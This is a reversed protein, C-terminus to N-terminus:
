NITVHGVCQMDMLLLQGVFLITNKEILKKRVSEILKKRVSKLDDLCKSITITGKIKQNCHHYIGMFSCFCHIMNLEKHFIIEYVTSIIFIFKKVVYYPLSFKESQTRKREPWLLSDNNHSFTDTLIGPWTNTQM